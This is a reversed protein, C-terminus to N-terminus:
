SPPGPVPLEADVDHGLTTASAVSAYDAGDPALRAGGFGPGSTGGNTKVLTRSLALDWATSTAPDAVAVVGNLVSVYTFVGNQLADVQLADSAPPAAVPAWRFAPHGSTGADDYYGTFSLKFYDGEASRVVYVTDRPTLVHTAPDYAYWGDGANFVLADAADKAYGGAPAANIAAFDAEPLAAVEVGGAGTVGGNTKIEFRKFGLDWSADTETAEKRAQFDFGIWADMSTADVSTTFTGDGNDITTVRSPMGGGDDGPMGADVNALSLDESCAALSSTLALAGALRTLGWTSCRAM